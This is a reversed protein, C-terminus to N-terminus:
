EVIKGDNDRRVKTQLPKPVPSKTRIQVSDKSTITTTGVVEKTKFDRVTVTKTKAPVKALFSSGNLDKQAPFEFKKGARMYELVLHPISKAIGATSIESTDYVGVESKQPFKANAASKKFDERILSSINLKVETIGDKAVSSVTATTDNAYANVMDGFGSQSFSGKGTLTENAKGPGKLKELVDNVFKM